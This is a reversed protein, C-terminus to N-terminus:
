EVKFDAASRVEVGRYRQSFYEALSRGEESLGEDLLIIRACPLQHRTRLLERLDTEMAPAEGRVPLILLVKPNRCKGSGLLAGAVLWVCSAVGVASLFALVGDQLLEM